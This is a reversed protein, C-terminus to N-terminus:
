IAVTSAFSSSMLSSSDRKSDLHGLINLECLSLAGLGGASIVLETVEANSLSFSSLKVQNNM